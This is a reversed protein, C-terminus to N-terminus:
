KHMNNYTSVSSYEEQQNEDSIQMIFKYGFHIVNVTASVLPPDM